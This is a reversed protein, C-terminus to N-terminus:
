ALWDLVSAREDDTKCLSRRPMEEPHIALAAGCRPFQRQRNLDRATFAAWTTSLQGQGPTPRERASIM